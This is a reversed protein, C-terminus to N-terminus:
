GYYDLTADLIRNLDGEEQATILGVEKLSNFYGKLYYYSWTPNEMDWAKFEKAIMVKYKKIRSAM